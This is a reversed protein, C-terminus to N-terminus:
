ILVDFCWLGKILSLKRSEMVKFLIQKNQSTMYINFFLICCFEVDVVKCCVNFRSAGIIVLWPSIVM